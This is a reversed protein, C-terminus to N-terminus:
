RQGQASVGDKHINKWCGPHYSVEGVFLDATNDIVEIMRNM